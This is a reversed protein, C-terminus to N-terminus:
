NDALMNENFALKRFIKNRPIIEPINIPKNNTSADFM